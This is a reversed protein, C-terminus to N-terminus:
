FIVTPAPKSFSGSADATAVTTSVHNGGRKVVVTVQQGPAGGNGSVSIIAATVNTGYTIEKNWPVATVQDNATGGLATTYSAFLVGTYNGSLEYQLTRSNNTKDKKCSFFVTCLTLLIISCKKM